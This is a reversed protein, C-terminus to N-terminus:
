KQPIYEKLRAKNRELIKKEFKRKFSVFSTEDEGVATVLVSLMKMRNGGFIDTFLQDGILASSGAEAGLDSLAKKLYKKRPKLAKYYYPIGLEKCFSEVREKNNNSVIAYKIGISKLFEFYSLVNQPPKPETHAVLTNDIDFIAAKIGNTKYFEEDLRSVNAVLFDPLVSFCKM